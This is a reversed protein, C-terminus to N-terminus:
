RPYVELAGLEAHARHLELGFRGTRNATFRLSETEDPRIRAHLDYGHLHLEDSSDSRINLIVQEGEHVQLVVPGSLPKGNKIVLEFVDTGPLPSRAAQETTGAPVSMTAPADGAEPRASVPAPLETRQPKFFFWLAAVLIIAVVAFAIPRVIVRNEGIACLAFAGAVLGGSGEASAIFRRRVGGASDLKTTGAADLQGRVAV